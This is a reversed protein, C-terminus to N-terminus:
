GTSLINYSLVQLRIPEAAESERLSCFAAVSFVINTIVFCRLANM